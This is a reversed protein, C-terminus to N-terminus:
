ITFCFHRLVNLGVKHLQEGHVGWVGRPLMQFAMINYRSWLKRVLEM